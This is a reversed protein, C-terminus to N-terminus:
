FLWYSDIINSKVLTRTMGLYLKEVKEFIVWEASAAPFLGPSIQTWPQLASILDDNVSFGWM